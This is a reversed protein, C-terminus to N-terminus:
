KSRLTAGPEFVRTSLWGISHEDVVKTQGKQTIWSEQRTIRVDCRDAGPSYVYFWVGGFCFKTAASEYMRASTKDLVGKISNDISDELDQKTQAAEPSAILLLGLFEDVVGHGQHTITAVFGDLVAVSSEMTLTDGRWLRLELQFQRQPGVMAAPTVRLAAAGGDMALANGCPACLAAACIMLFVIRRTM